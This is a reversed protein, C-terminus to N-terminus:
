TGSVLVESGMDQLLEKQQGVTYNRSPTSVLVHGEDIAGVVPLVLNAFPTNQVVQYIAQDLVTPPLQALAPSPIYSTLAPSADLTGTLQIMWGMAAIGEISAGAFIVARINRERCTRCLTTSRNGTPLCFLIYILSDQRTGIHLVHYVNDNM